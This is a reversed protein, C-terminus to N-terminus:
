ISKGNIETINKDRQSSCLNWPSYFMRKNLLIAGSILLIYLENYMSLLSKTPLHNNYTLQPSLSSHFSKIINEQDSRNKGLTKDMQICIDESVQVTASRRVKGLISIQCSFKAERHTHKRQLLIHRQHTLFILKRRLILNINLSMIKIVM